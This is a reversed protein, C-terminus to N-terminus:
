KPFAGIAEIGEDSVRLVETTIPYGSERFERQVVTGIRDLLRRDDESIIYVFDRCPLVVFVPWSLKRSVFTKFSPAFIVSAKFIPEVPVMALKAGDINEVELDRGEILKDINAAAADLVADVPVNWTGILDPTVWTLKTVNKDTVTLVQMVDDSVPRRVAEGFDYDSPEALFYLRSEAEAWTPEEFSSLVVDVFRGIAGEDGDREFDRAVNALSVLLRDPGIVYNGDDDPGQYSVQRRDLEHRFLRHIRSMHVGHWRFVPPALM